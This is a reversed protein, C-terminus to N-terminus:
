CLVVWEPSQGASEALLHVGTSSQRTTSVCMRVRTANSATLMAGTELSVGMAPINGPSDGSCAGTVLLGGPNNNVIIFEAAGCQLSRDYKLSRHITQPSFPYEHRVVVIQGAIRNAVSNFDVETGRGIDVLNSEVGGAPTEVSWYLPQCALQNPGGPAILELSWSSSTWGHYNFSHAAFHMDPIKRLRAK